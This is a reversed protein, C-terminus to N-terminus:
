NLGEGNPKRLFRPKSVLTFCQFEEWKNRSLVQLLVEDFVRDFVRCSRLYMRWIESTRTCPIAFLIFLAVYECYHLFAVNSSLGALLLHVCSTSM